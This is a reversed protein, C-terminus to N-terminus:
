PSPPVDWGYCLCLANSLFCLLKSSAFHSCLLVEFHAFARWGLWGSSFVQELPLLPNKSM